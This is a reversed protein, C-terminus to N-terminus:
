FGFNPTVFYVAPRRLEIGHEVYLVGLRLLILSLPATPWSQRQAVSQHVANFRSNASESAVPSIILVRCPDSSIWLCINIICECFARWSNNEIEMERDQSM